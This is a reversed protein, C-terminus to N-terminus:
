DDTDDITDRKDQILHQGYEKTKLINIITAPRIDKKSMEELTMFRYLHKKKKGNDFEISSFKHPGKYNIPEMLYHFDIEHLMKTKEDGLFVETISLLAKTKVNIKTEEQVERIAANESNEGFKIHGGPFSYFNNIKTCDVLYKGNLEIVGCARLKYTGNDMHFRVDKAM